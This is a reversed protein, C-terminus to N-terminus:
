KRRKGISWIRKFFLISFVLGGVTFLIGLVVLLFRWDHKLYVAVLFISTWLIIFSIGVSSFITLYTRSITIFSKSWILDEWEGIFSDRSYKESLFKSISRIHLTVELIKLDLFFSVVPILLIGIAVLEIEGAIFGLALKNVIFFTIVSAIAAFKMKTLTQVYFGYQRYEEKIQKYFEINLEENM